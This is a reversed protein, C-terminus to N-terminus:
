YNANPTNGTAHTEHSLEKLTVQVISLVRVVMSASLQLFPDPTQSQFNLGLSSQQCCSESAAVTWATRASQVALM